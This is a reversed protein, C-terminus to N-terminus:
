GRDSQRAGRRSGIGLRQSARGEGGVHHMCQSQRSRSQQSRSHGARKGARRQLEMNNVRRARRHSNRRASAARTQAGQNHRGQRRAVETHTEGRRRRVIHLTEGLVKLFLKAFAGRSHSRAQM